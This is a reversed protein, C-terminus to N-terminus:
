LIVYCGDSSNKQWIIYNQLLTKLVNKVIKKKTVNSFINYLYQTSGVFDNYHHKPLYKQKYKSFKDTNIPFKSLIHYSRGFTCVYVEIQKTCILYYKTCVFNFFIVM